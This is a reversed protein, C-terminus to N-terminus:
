RRGAQHRGRYEAALGRRWSVLLAALLGALVIVAIGALVAWATLPNGGPWASVAM